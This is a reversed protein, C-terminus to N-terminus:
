LDEEIMYDNLNEGQKGEILIARKGTSLNLKFPYASHRNGYSHLHYLIGDKEEYLDINESASLGNGITKSSEVTWVALPLNGKLPLKVDRADPDLVYACDGKGLSEKQLNFGEQTSM